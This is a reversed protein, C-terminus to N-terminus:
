SSVRISLENANYEPEDNFGQNLNSKPQDHHDDHPLDYTM